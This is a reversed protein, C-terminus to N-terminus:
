FHNRVIPALSENTVTANDIPALSENTVSANDIPALCENTVSANDIPALSENTVSANDIPAFSKNTVSANDESMVRFTRRAAKQERHREIFPPVPNDFNLKFVVVNWVNRTRPPNGRNLDITDMMMPMRYSQSIWVSSTVNECIIGCWETAKLFWVSSTVNECIIACLQHWVETQSQLM